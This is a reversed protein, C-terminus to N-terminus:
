IEGLHEPDEEPLDEQIGKLADLWPAYDEPCDPLTQFTEVTDMSKQLGEREQLLGTFRLGISDEVNEKEASHNGMIAYLFHPPLCVLTSVINCALM